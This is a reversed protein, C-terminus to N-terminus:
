RRVGSRRSASRTAAAALGGLGIAGAGAALVARHTTVAVRVSRHVAEDDFIGHAGPDGPVPEFLYDPRDPDIPTDTQQAEINSRALYRDVLGPVLKSAWTTAVTSGGVHVEGRRPHDASWLVARAAVEPQYVPAVPRPHRPTRARVWGFQPTNLGPLQVVTVRVEALVATMAGNVWVDIPGLGAEVRSAAADVADADAVDVPVALARGGAARVEEAARELRDEDRALLAM